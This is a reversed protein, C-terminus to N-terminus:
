HGQCYNLNGDTNEKLRKGCIPCRHISKYYIHRKNKEKQERMRKTREWEDMEILYEKFTM